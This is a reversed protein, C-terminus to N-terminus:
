RSGTARLAANRLARTAAAPLRLRLAEFAAFGAALPLGGTAAVYGARWPASLGALWRRPSHLPRRTVDGIVSTSWGEAHTETHSLAAAVALEAPTPFFALRALARQARRRATAEDACELALRRAARSEAFALIGDRIPRRATEGALEARRSPSADGALEPVVTGDPGDRYGLVSGHPARCIAELLFALYWAGAERVGRARRFDSLVGVKADLETPPATLDDSWLGVYYGRALAFGDGGFAQHLASQITGRWGVDVVALRRGPAFFGEQVLYRALLARKAESERAVIAQFAPDALVAGLTADTAPCLIPRALDSVGHRALVARFTDPELGFARLVTAFGQNTARAALADSADGLTLRHVAALQTSRRSLYVYCRAPVRLLPAQGAAQELLTLLLEGDRAVCALADIGDNAAARLTLHAYTLLAPGLVDSGLAFAAADAGRAAAPPADSATARAPLVRVADVGAARASWVDAAVNDGVHLLDRTAVGEARLVHGYLRGTFKSLGVDSSAYAREVEAVGHSALLRELDQGSLYMDSVAIVRAGAARAEQVLALLEAAVRTHRRELRWELECLADLEAATAPAGRAEAVLAALVRQHNVEPDLGALRQERGLRQEVHRRLASPSDERGARARSAQQAPVGARAVRVAEAAVARRVAAGGAHDRLLLTEFIDVSLVRPAAGRAAVLAGWTPVPGGSAGGPASRAASRALGWALRSASRLSGVGPLRPMATPARM